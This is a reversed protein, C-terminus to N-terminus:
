KMRAARGKLTEALAKMRAADRGQASGADKEFQAALTNLQEVAQAAGRDQPTRVGDAKDLASKVAKARDSPMTKSRTLQDVYALAVATSAPWTIKKQEQTNLEENRILTAADIENQSLFESPKLKFVDIGRTLESGYIAGNYWYTSWFGGSHM